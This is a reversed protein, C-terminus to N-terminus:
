HGEGRRYIKGNAAPMRLRQSAFALVLLTTLHPAFRTVDGPVTETIVFIVGVAVGIAVAITGQVYRQRRLVQWLGLGVLLVAILLLLAHIADGGGRLQLADMFGFLGSGMLVGGPRWNGFIMAALGIYGRGDTQSERYANSAVMALFGGGLGALAGSATVAVYKYLYVNVGLTEAAVPSEGCSRVRLGFPTRWLLWWTGVILLLAIITLISLNTTAARLLAALESVFFWGKDEVSKLPDSIGPIGVRPLSPLPPSQVDSGGELEGFFRAALYSAVGLAVINLAVGSVIHDVGFTVTALAHVLGGVAGCVMAGVIGMWPGGHIAGFAAGWTGLIMMGELGINIVGARESWLGGLGALALPMALALTAGLTGSSSIDSIGTVLRIASLAVLVGALALPWAWFPIRRAPTSPAIQTETGVSLSM